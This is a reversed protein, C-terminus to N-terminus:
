TGKGGAAVKARGEAVAQHLAPFSAAPQAAPRRRVMHVADFACATQCQGCGLCREPDVVAPEDEPARIAGVQCAEACAGCATCEARDVEPLWAAQAVAGPQDLTTITRLFLCCCGCCNCMFNAGAAVNDTVHVLGAKEARELTALAEETEVLRAWGQKAAFEAFPGFMLCVDKPHGCGQGLLEAEHRCYCNTVAVAEAARVVEGAREHPLIEQRNEVVRGVPIVRSYPMGAALMAPGTGPRYYDEFLRALREKDPGTGGGMFQLEMMGPVVPLLSFYPGGPTERMYLLGRGALARLAAELGAPERGLEGALRDVRAPKFPLGAALEAEEASFLAQLIALLEPGQPAGLPTEDLHRALRQHADTTHKDALM